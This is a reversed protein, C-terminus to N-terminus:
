LRRLLAAVWLAVTSMTSQRYLHLRGLKWLRLPLAARRMEAFRELRERNEPLLRASSRRLAAINTENWARYRGNLIMGIRRARERASDNAGIENAGHQRYHLTPTDDHILVAGAGSMVQYVWWDHIVVPGAEAAAACLLRAAAPTVVITNGAVVNQVLANRFGLPRPRPPSARLPKADADAIWSRSCFLAPTDPDIGALAAVSRALKDELWIDDQDAFALWGPDGDSAAGVRRLLSMFNESAGARPGDVTEVDHDAAFADLVSRSNDASGDDSAVLRWNGHTQAALSDLQEALHAGGNYVAILITIRHCGEPDRDEPHPQLTQEVM